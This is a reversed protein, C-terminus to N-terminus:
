FQANLRRADAVDPVLFSLIMNLFFIARATSKTPDSTKPGDANSASEDGAGNAPAHSTSVFLVVAKKRSLSESDV